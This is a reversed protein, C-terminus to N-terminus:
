GSAWGGSGLCTRCMSFAAWLAAAGAARLPPVLAMSYQGLSCRTDYCTCCRPHVGSCNVGALVAFSSLGPVWPIPDLGNIVAWTDPVAADFEEAFAHNGVRPCGFTYCTLQSNPHERQIELAALAALAGGLSHGVIWFRLPTPGQDLEKLRDLVKRNFGSHVWAGNFGAHVKVLRGQRRRRPQLPSMWTKLDTMVNQISKTGRFAVVVQTKNWGLVAHTDTTDDWITEFHDVSFLRLGTHANVYLNTLADSHRYALRMWYFLKIATEICFMPEQRLQEAAQQIDPVGRLRALVQALEEHLHSMMLTVGTQSDSSPPAETELLLENREEIAAPMGDLTWSFGQLFEQLLPSDLAKAKPMYLIVMVVTSVTLAMDVPLNGMQGDVAAWCSDRFSPILTLFLVSAVVALLVPSVVRLLVRVFILTSRYHSYPLQGHDKLARLMWRIWFVVYVLILVFSIVAVTTQSVSTGCEEWNDLLTDCGQEFELNGETSYRLLKDIMGGLSASMLVVWLTLIVRHNRLIEHAPRDVMLRYDPHMDLAGKGRWVTMNQLRALLFLMLSSFFMWQVFELVALVRWPYQCDPRTLVAVFAGVFTASYPIQLGLLMAATRTFYGQRKTWVRGDQRSRRISTLFWILMAVLIALSVSGIILEALYYPRLDGVRVDTERMSLLGAATLVFLINLTWMSWTILRAQATSAVEVRLIVRRARRQQQEEQLARPQKPPPSGGPPAAAAGPGPGAAAAEVDGAVASGDSSPDLPLQQPAGRDAAGSPPPPPSPAPPSASPGKAAAPLAARLEATSTDAAEMSDQRAAPLCRIHRAM